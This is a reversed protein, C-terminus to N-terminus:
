ILNFILNIKQTNKNLGQPNISWNTPRKMKALLFHAFRHKYRAYRLMSDFILILIKQRSAESRAKRDRRKAMKRLSYNTM